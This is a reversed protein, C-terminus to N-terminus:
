ASNKHRWSAPNELFEKVINIDDQNFLQEAEAVKIIDKWTTLYHLAFKSERFIKESNAFIDYFFPCFVHNIQAGAKRIAEVFITKSGGDTAMDEVLLVNPNEVDSFNGEIQSMRGFGKAKKRVYLMPKNLAEALWAAYPIGATEGGAIYDIEDINLTKELHLRAFRMIDAREKPYSILRRCDVYVPSKEGSTLTFPEITSGSLMVCGTSILNRAVSASIEDNAPHKVQM